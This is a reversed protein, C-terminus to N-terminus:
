ISWSVVNWSRTNFGELRNLFDLLSHLNMLAWCRSSLKKVGGIQRPKLIKSNLESKRPIRSDIKPGEKRRVRSMYFSQKLLWLVTCLNCLYQAFEKLCITVPSLTRSWTWRKRKFFNSYRQVMPNQLWANEQDEDHSYVSSSQLRCHERNTNQLRTSLDACSNTVYKPTTCWFSSSDSCFLDLQTNLYPNLQLNTLYM